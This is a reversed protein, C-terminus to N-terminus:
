QLHTALSYTPPWLNRVGGAVGVLHSMVPPTAKLLTLFLRAAEPHDSLALVSRTLLRYDRLLSRREADFRALWGDGTGLGRLVGDALLEATVLAQAMGGGTIPDLFGAADGLLVVGPAV